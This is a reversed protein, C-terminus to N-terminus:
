TLKGKDFQPADKSLNTPVRVDHVDVEENALSSAASIEMSSFSTNAGRKKASADKIFLMVGADELAARADTTVFRGGDILHKFHYDGQENLLQDVTGANTSESRDGCFLAAGNFVTGGNPLTVDNDNGHVQLGDLSLSLLKSTESTTVTPQELELKALTGGNGHEHVSKGLINSKL